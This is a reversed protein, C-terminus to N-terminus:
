DCVVPRPIQLCTNVYECKICGPRPRAACIALSLKGWFVRSMSCHRWYRSARRVSVNPSLSTMLQLSVGLSGLVDFKAIKESFQLYDFKQIKGSYQLYLWFWKNSIRQYSFKHKLTTMLYTRTCINTVICTCHQYCTLYPTNRQSPIHTHSSGCKVWNTGDLPFIIGLDNCSSFVEHKIGQKIVHLINKMAPM